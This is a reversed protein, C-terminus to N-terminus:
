AKEGAQSQGGENTEGVGLRGRAEFRDRTALTM